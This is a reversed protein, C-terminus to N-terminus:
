GQGGCGGPGCGPKGCGGWPGNAMPLSAGSAAPAAPVSFQKELRRGGCEPCVPREDGRVLLEFAAGCAECQYEYLPM